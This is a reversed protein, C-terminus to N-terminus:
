KEFKQSNLVLAIAVERYPHEEFYAEVWARADAEGGFRRLIEVSSMLQDLSELNCDYYVRKVTSATLHSTGKAKAAARLEDAAKKFIDGDTTKVGNAGLERIKLWVPIELERHVRRAQRKAGAGRKGKKGWSYPSGFAADWSSYKFAKVDRFKKTFANALWTPLPISKAACVNIASLIARDDGLKEFEFRQMELQQIALKRLTKKHRALRRANLETYSRKKAVALQRCHSL